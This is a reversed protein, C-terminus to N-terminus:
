GGVTFSCLKTSWDSRDNVFPARRNKISVALNEFPTPVRRVPMRLSRVGVVFVSLQKTDGAAVAVLEVFKAVVFLSPHRLDSVDGCSRLSCVNRGTDLDKEFRDGFAVSQSVAPCHLRAIVFATLWDFSSNDVVLAHKQKADRM